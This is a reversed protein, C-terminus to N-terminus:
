ADRNASGLAVHPADGRDDTREHAEGEGGPEDEDRQVDRAPIARELGAVDAVACRRLLGIEPLGPLDDREAHGLRQQSDVVVDVEAFREPREPERADGLGCDESGLSASRRFSARVSIAAIASPSASEHRRERAM